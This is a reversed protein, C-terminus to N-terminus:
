RIKGFASLKKAEEPIDLVPIRVGDVMKYTGGNKEFSSKNNM